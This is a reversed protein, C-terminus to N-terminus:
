HKFFLKLRTLWRRLWRQWHATRPKMIRLVRRRRQDLEETCLISELKVPANLLTSGDSREMLIQKGEPM